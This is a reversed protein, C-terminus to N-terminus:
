AKRLHAELRRNPVPILIPAPLHPLLAPSKVEKSCYYNGLCGSCRKPTWKNGSASLCPKGCKVYSCVTGISLRIERQAAVDGANVADEFKKAMQRIYQFQESSASDMAELMRREHPTIHTTEDVPLATPVPRRFAPSQPQVARDGRLSVIPDIIWGVIPVPFPSASTAALEYILPALVSAPLAPNALINLSTALEYIILSCRAKAASTASPAQACIHDLEAENAVAQARDATVQQASSHPPALLESSPPTLRHTPHM